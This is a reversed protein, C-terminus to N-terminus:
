HMYTKLLTSEDIMSNYKKNKRSWLTDSTFRVNMHMKSLDDLLANVEEKMKQPVVSKKLNCIMWFGERVKEIDTQLFGDKWVKTSYVSQVSSGYAEDYRWDTGRNSNSDSTWRLTCTGRDLYITLSHIDKPHNLQYLIDHYVFKSKGEMFRIARERLEPYSCMVALRDLRVKGREQVIDNWRERMLVTAVEHRLEKNVKSMALLSSWTRDSSMSCYIIEQLCDRPTDDFTACDLAASAAASQLAALRPLFM